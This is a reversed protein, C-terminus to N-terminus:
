TASTPRSPQATKGGPHGPDRYNVEDPHYIVPSYTIKIESLAQRECKKHFPAKKYGERTVNDGAQKGSEDGVPCSLCHFDSRGFVFVAETM